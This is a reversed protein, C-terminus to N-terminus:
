IVDHRLEFDELSIGNGESHVARYEQGRDQSQRESPLTKSVSYIRDFAVSNLANNNSLTM